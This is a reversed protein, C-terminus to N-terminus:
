SKIDRRGFFVCGLAFGTLGFGILWAASEIVKPWPIEQHLLYLWDNMRSTIFYPKYDAMFPFPITALIKDCIIVAVALITAAAPKIKLCSLFFALGTVPMYLFSFGIVGLYYRYFGENWDFLSVTPLEPAWVLFGGGWGRSLVGFALATTGAFVFLVFTYIQCAIFKVLLLRFRSVPRALLLRLNGDETEKAVIDGVVLAVFIAGLLFMTFLLIMFGLTLASFYDDMGGSVRKIFREVGSKERTWVLFFALEFLLFISFGIYTRRRAFMRFLEWGLQRTLLPMDAISIEFGLWYGTAQCRSSFDGHFSQLDGDLVPEKCFEPQIIM